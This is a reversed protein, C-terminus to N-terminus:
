LSCEAISRRGMHEDDMDLGGRALLTWAAMTWALRARCSAWVRQGVPTRHCVTTRLSLGTAVLRRDGTTAQCGTETLVSRQGDWPAMLPQGHTAHRHATACDWACMVGWPHRIVGRTGGGM